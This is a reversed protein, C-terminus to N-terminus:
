KKEKLEKIVDQQVREMSQKLKEEQREINKLRVESVEKKERLESSLSERSTALMIKGVIRYAKSTSQLEHLASELEVLQNQLQQKQTLITQLNQQLLQLENIKAM